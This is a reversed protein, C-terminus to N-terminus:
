LRKMRDRETVHMSAGHFRKKKVALSQLLERCCLCCYTPIVNIAMKTSVYRVATWLRLWVRAYGPLQGPMLKSQGVMLMKKESFIADFVLIILM